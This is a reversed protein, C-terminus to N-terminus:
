KLRLNHPPLGSVDLSNLFEIPYNTAEDENTVCDISKFSHMTGIIENQIIYNLDDVDKNKASYILKEDDSFYSLIEKERTRYATITVEPQLLNKEKLRSALLETAQKSLNQDRILDSLENQSFLQPASTEGAYESESTGLPQISCQSGSLVMEESPTLESQSGYIPQPLEVNHLVLRQRS